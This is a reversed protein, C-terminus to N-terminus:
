NKGLLRFMNKKYVEVGPQNFPNVDLLLVTMACARFFFYCMYGFSEASMDKLTLILNPVGGTNVHAELTGQAAMKNVWDVSKGSLYNMQDLNQADSPFTIDQTPRDIMLITEFLVKKGEQVFQGLSHLDTSFTASDPLIGKGEKGESEGFLQKWWEAIMSMQLEYSVLMEVDYGQNQLIRRCVAYAYAANHDLDSDALDEYAKKLGSMIADIDIGAVAIPLLGVPTIVSYRGGIDDPIVFTEYGEQDAVAKLVGRAKDTTAVIREKAQEKYKEDMFQKLLRFALSTETTTGSKSIVNVCVEKDKIYEMVQAIYTSSFTNGIFIIEPKKNAYLGNIMEIAARAGLYSGGIGCVVFVDCMERMRAATQKIRAFEEQDYTNPWEVWGVYDNGLCEKNMLQQHLRDVSEQYDKVNEKLFAHKTELKIM